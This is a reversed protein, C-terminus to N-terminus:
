EGGEHVSLLRHHHFLIASRTPWLVVITGLGDVPVLEPGDDLGSPIAM